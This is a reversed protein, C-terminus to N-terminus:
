PERRYLDQLRYCATQYPGVSLKLGASWEAAKKEIEANSKATAAAAKQASDTQALCFVPVLLSLAISLSLYKMM